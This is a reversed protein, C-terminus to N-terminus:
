IQTERRPIGGQKAHKGEKRSKICQLFVFYMFQNRIKKFYILFVIPFLMSLGVGIVTAINDLSLKLENTDPVFAFSLIPIYIGVLCTLNGLLLFFTFKAMAKSLDMNRSITKKKILRLTLMPFIVSPIGSFLGYLMFYFISYGIGAYINVTNVACPHVLMTSDFQLVTSDSFLAMNPGFALTWLAVIAVCAVKFGWRPQRLNASTYRTTIFVAVGYMGMFLLRAAAGSAALAYVASCIVGITQHPTHYHYTYYICAIAGSIVSVECTAVINTLILRITSPVDKQRIIALILILAAIFLLFISLLLLVAFFYVYVDLQDTPVTDNTINLCM